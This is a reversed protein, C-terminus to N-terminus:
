PSTNLAARVAAERLFRCQTQGRRSALMLFRHPRTVAVYLVRRSEALDGRPHPMQGEQLDVVCVAEFERGKAAHFTLLKVSGDPNAFTGLDDVTLQDAQVDRNGRIDAIIEDGAERM